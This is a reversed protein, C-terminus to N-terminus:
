KAKLANLADVVRAAFHTHGAKTLHGTQSDIMIGFNAENIWQGVYPSIYSVGANDSREHLIDDARFLGPQAPWQATSPGLVVIQAKPFKKRAIALTADFAPGLDGMYRGFDNVSGQIIVLRADSVALKKMRDGYAGLNQGANLYGTGNGGLVEADLGLKAAVQYAYGDTEPDMYLGSTWSDGFFVTQTGAGFVLPKAPKATSTPMPALTAGKDYAAQVKASVPPPSQAACGASVVLSGALVAAGLLRSFRM